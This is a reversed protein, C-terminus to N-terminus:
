RLAARTRGIQKGNVRTGTRSGADKLLAKGASFEIVCHARSVAPDTIRVKAGEGRGISVPAGEELPFIQGENPGATVHLEIPM